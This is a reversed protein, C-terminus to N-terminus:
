DILKASSLLRENFDENTSYLLLIISLAYLQFPGRYMNTPILHLQFHTKGQNQEM